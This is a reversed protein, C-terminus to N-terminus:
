AGTLMASTTTPEDLLGQGGTLLASTSAAAHEQTLRRQLTTTSAQAQTPQASLADPGQLEPQKPAQFLSGVAKGLSGLPQTFANFDLPNPTSNGAM